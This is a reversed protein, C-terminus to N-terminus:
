KYNLKVKTMTYKKKGVWLKQWKPNQVEAGLGATEGQQYYVLTVVTNLDKELTVFAFMESWLGKGNIPFIVFDVAGQDNKVLYVLAKQRM